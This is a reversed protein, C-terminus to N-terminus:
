NLNPQTLKIKKIVVTITISMFGFEMKQIRSENLSLITSTINPKSVNPLTQM